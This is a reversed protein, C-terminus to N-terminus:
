MFRKPVNITGLGLRFLDLHFLPEVEFGTTHPPFDRSELRNESRLQITPAHWRSFWEPKVAASPLRVSTSMIHFCRPLCHSFPPEGLAMDKPHSARFEPSDQTSMLRLCLFPLGGFSRRPRGPPSAASAWPWSRFQSTAGPPESAAPEPRCDVKLIGELGPCM